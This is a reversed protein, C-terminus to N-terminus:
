QRDSVKGPDSVTSKATSKAGVIGFRNGSTKVDLNIQGSMNSVRPKTAEKDKLQFFKAATGVFGKKGQSQALDTSTKVDKQFYSTDKIVPRTGGGSTVGTASASSSSTTGTQGSSTMTTSTTSTTTTRSPAQPFLLLSSSQTTPTPRTGTTTTTATSSSQTTQVPRTNSTTTTTTSSQTTQTSGTNTTSTQVRPTMRTDTATTTVTSTPTTTVTQVRPWLPLGSSTTQPLPPADPISTAVTTTPTTSTPTTSTTTSGGQQNNSLLSEQSPAGGRIIRGDETLILNLTSRYSALSTTSGSMGNRSASSVGIGTAGGSAGINGGSGDGGSSTAGRQADLIDRGKIWRPSTRYVYESKKGTKPDIIKETKIEDKTFLLFARTALSKEYTVVEGRGNTYQVYKKEPDINGEALGFFESPGVGYKHSPRKSVVAVASSSSAAAASSSAVAPSAAGGVEGGSTSLNPSSASRRMSSSATNVTGLGGFSNRRGSAAGIAGSVGGRGRGISAESKEGPSIVACAAIVLFTYTCKNLGNKMLANM